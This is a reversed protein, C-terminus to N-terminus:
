EFAIEITDIPDVERAVRTSDVEEFPILVLDVPGRKTFIGGNKASRSVLGESKIEFGPQSSLRGNSAAFRSTRKVTTLDVYSTGGSMTCTM